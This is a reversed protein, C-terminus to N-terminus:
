LQLWILRLTNANVKSRAQKRQADRAKMEADPTIYDLLDSVSIWSYLGILLFESLHVTDELTFLILKNLKLKPCDQMWMGLVLPFGMLIIILSLGMQIPVCWRLMLKVHKEWFNYHNGSIVKAPSPPMQSQLVMAPLKKSSWLKPSLTSLGHLRM